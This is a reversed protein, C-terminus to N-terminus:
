QEKLKPEYRDKIYKSSICNEETGCYDDWKCTDCNNKPQQLAELEEIAEDIGIKMGCIKNTNYNNCYDLGGCDDCYNGDQKIKKLAELAKM